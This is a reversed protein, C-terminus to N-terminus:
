LSWAVVDAALKFPKEIVIPWPWCVVFFHQRSKLVRNEYHASTIIITKTNKAYNITKVCLLKIRTYVHLAVGDIIFIIYPLLHTNAM